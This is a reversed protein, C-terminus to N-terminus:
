QTRQEGFQRMQVGGVRDACEDLAALFQKELLVHFPGGRLRVNLDLLLGLLCWPVLTPSAGSTLLDMSRCRGLTEPDTQEEDRQTTLTFGSQVPFRDVRQRERGRSPVQLHRARLSM